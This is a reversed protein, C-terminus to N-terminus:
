EIWDPYRGSWADRCGLFYSLLKCPPSRPGFRGTRGVRHLYTAPIDPIDLNIVLNVREM